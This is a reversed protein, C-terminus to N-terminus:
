ESKVFVCRGVHRWGSAELLPIIAQTFRKHRGEITQKYGSDSPFIASLIVRVRGVGRWDIRDDRQGEIIKAAIEEALPQISLRPAM